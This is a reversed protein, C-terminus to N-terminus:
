GGVNLGRRHAERRLLRLSRSEIQGMRARTLGALAGAEKLTRGQRYLLLAADRRPLIALLSRVLESADAEAGVEGLRNDSLRSALSKHGHGRVPTASEWDLSLPWRGKGRAARRGMRDHEQRLVALIGKWLCACAFTSFVCGRSVDFRVVAEYLRNVGADMLDDFTYADAWKQLLKRAVMRALGMHAMVLRWRNARAQEADVGRCTLRHRWCVAEDEPTLPASPWDTTHRTM